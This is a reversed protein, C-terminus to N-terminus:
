WKSLAILDNQNEQARLSECAAEQAQGANSQKVARRSRFERLIDSQVCLPCTRAISPRTKAVLFSRQNARLAASDNEEQTSSFAV